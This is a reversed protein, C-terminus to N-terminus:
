PTQYTKAELAVITVIIIENSIAKKIDEAVLM